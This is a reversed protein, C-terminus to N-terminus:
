QATKGRMAQALIGVGLVILALPWFKGLLTLITEFVGGVLVTGGILGMIAAPILAWWHTESTFVATLVTILVWGLAFSLMFVGGGNDGSALELPGSTLFIGLGIGSMIGGPIIPGAERAFIGWLLLIVGIVPLILLELDPFSGFNIFQGVLAVLGIVVLILGGVLGDRKKEVQNTMITGGSMKFPTETKQVLVQNFFFIASITL